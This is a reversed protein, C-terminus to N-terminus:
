SLINRLAEITTELPRATKMFAQAAAGAAQAAARVADDEFGRKVAERFLQPEFPHVLIGAGIEELRRGTILAEFHRPSVIHPRGAALAAHAFGPGGHSFVASCEPMLSPLAPASDYLRVGRSKLVAGRAGPTGRFFVSAQSGLDMLAQTLENAAPNNSASYAFLQRSRPLVTLAPLPEIPGLAAEPRVDRYTDFLSFSYVGRFAGRFPDCITKPPVRGLAAMGEQIAALVPAQRSREGQGPEFPPFVESDCPPVAFGNGVVAVPIRGFASLVAGPAHDCVVLDPRVLEFVGDWAGVMKHIGAPTGYGNGLLIDAYSGSPMAPPVPAPWYPAQMVPAEFEGLELRAPEPERLAFVVKAGERKVARAIAKLPPLHGLGEGLEWAFLVVKNNLSM